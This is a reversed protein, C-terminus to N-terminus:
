RMGFIQRKVGIETAKRMTHHPDILRIGTPSPAERKPSRVALPGDM